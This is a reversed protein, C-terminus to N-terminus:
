RSFPYPLLTLAKNWRRNLRFPGFSARCVLPFASLPVGSAGPAMLRCKTLNWRDHGDLLQGGGRMFLNQQTLQNQHLLERHAVIM